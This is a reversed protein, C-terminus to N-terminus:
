KKDLQDLLINAMHQDPVAIAFDDVQHMFVICKGNIIGSYLCHEHVTPTLGLERLIADAHKEWLCLSEPHGQMASLVTIVHGPPIPPNGKFNEWWKNFARDPRIYFGQKPPPAKTFANCIDFGFVLLNEAAAVM